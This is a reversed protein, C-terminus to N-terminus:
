TASCCSSNTGGKGRWMAIANSARSLAQAIMQIVRDGTEHGHTDNVPKFRDVDMLIVSVPEGTRAFAELSQRLRSMAYRRNPLGTLADTDAPVTAM